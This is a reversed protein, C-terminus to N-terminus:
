FAGRVQVTGLGVEVQVDNSRGELVLAVAFGALAAGAISFTAATTRDWRRVEDAGSNFQADSCGPALSCMEDLDSFSRNGSVRAVVGVGAFAVATVGTLWTWLRRSGTSGADTPESDESNESGVQAELIALRAEVVERNEADPQRELYQTYLAIARADDRARDAANAANFLLAPRESLEFAHEFYDAARAYEGRDFALEGAEFVERAAADESQAAEPTPEEADQASALSSQAMAATAVAM